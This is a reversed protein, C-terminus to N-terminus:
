FHILFLSIGGVKITNVTSLECTIENYLKEYNNKFM